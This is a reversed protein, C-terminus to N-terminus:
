NKNPVDEFICASPFSSKTMVHGRLSKVILYIYPLITIVYWLFFNSFKQRNNYLAPCRKSFKVPKYGLPPPPGESAGDTCKSQLQRRSPPGSSWSLCLWPVLYSVWSSGSPARLGQVAIIHLDVIAAQSLTVDGFTSILQCRVKAWFWAGEGGFCIFLSRRGMERVGTSALHRSFCAHQDVM